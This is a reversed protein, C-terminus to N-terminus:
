EVVIIGGAAEDWANATPTGFLIHDSDMITFTYLYHKGPEWQRLFADLHIQETHETFTSGNASTRYTVDFVVATGVEGPWVFCDEMVISSTGDAPLATAANNHYLSNSGTTLNGTPTWGYAPATATGNAEYNGSPRIGYFRVETVEATFEPLLALTAPDIRGAFSIRALLHRFTFKVPQPADGPLGTASAAMLDVASDVPFNRIALTGDEAYSAAAGGAQAALDATEPYLAHFDYTEGAQWYRYGGEYTWQGGTNAVPTPTANDDAFVPTRATAATANEHWAWVSFRDGEAFSEVAARTLAPSRFCIADNSEGEDLVDTATCASMLVAMGAARWLRSGKKMFGTGKTAMYM